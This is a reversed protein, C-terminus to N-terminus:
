VIFNVNISDSTKNARDAHLHVSVPESPDYNDPQLAAFKQKHKLVM